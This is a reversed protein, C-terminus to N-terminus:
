LFFFKGFGFTFLKDFFILKFEVRLLLTKKNKIFLFNRFNNTILENNLRQLSNAADKLLGKITRGPIIPLDTEDKNVISDAYTGGALGSGTHWYDFFQIKYIAKKM